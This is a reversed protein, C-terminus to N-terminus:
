YHHGLIKMKAILVFCCLLMQQMISSDSGNPMLVTLFAASGMGLQPIVHKEKAVAFADDQIRTGPNALMGTSNSRAPSLGAGPHPESSHDERSVVIVDDLAEVLGPSGPSGTLNSPGHTSAAIGSQEESLAEDKSMVIVDDLTRVTQSNLFLPRSCPQLFSETIFM